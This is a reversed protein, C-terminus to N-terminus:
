TRGPPLEGVGLGFIRLLGSFPRLPKRWGCNVCAWEEGSAPDYEQLLRGQCRPCSAPRIPTRPFTDNM